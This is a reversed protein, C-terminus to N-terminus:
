RAGRDAVKDFFTRETRAYNYSVVRVQRPTPPTLGVGLGIFRARVSAREIVRGRLRVEKTDDDLLIGGVNCQESSAIEELM